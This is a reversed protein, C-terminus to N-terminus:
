IRPTNTPAYPRGFFFYLLGALFGIVLSNDKIFLGVRNTVDQGLTVLLSGLLVLILTVVIWVALATLAKWLM